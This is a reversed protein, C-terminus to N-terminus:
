IWVVLLGAAMCISDSSPLTDILLRSITNREGIERSKPIGKTFLKFAEACKEAM